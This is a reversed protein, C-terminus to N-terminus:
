SASSSSFNDDESILKNFVKHLCTDCYILKTSGAFCTAKKDCHICKSQEPSAFFQHVTMWTM